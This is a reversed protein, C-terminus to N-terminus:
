QAYKERFLGIMAKRAAQENELRIGYGYVGDNDNILIRSYEATPNRVEIYSLLEKALPSEDDESVTLNLSSILAEPDDTQNLSIHYYRVSSEGFSDVYNAPDNLFDATDKYVNLIAYDGLGREFRDTTDKFELIGLTNKESIDDEFYNYRIDNRLLEALEDLKDERIIGTANYVAKLGGLDTRGLIGLVSPDFEDLAKVATSFGEISSDGNRVNYGRFIKRGSNTVYTINLQDGTFLEDSDLLIEHANLIVSLSDPNKYIHEKYESSNIESYFYKGSVRIEKISNKSPLKKSYEFFDTTGLVMLFAACAGFVAAFRLATKWFGKFSKNQSLELACYFLFSIPLIMLLGSAGKEAYFYSTSLGIVMVLLTLALVYFVSKFVFGEGTKEAKRRKGIFYAGAIFAAIVLAPVIFCIPSNILYDFNNRESLPIYPDQQRMIISFVAGSPPLLGINSSIERFNDVGVSNSFFYNAYITYIGPIVAMAVISFVIANGFRGCCSSIFATVAYISLYSIMIVPLLVTVTHPIIESTIDTNGVAANKSILDKIVNELILSVGSLPVLSIFNTCVSNLLDGSFREGYSLPLCGLTDISARDHYVRMSRVTVVTIMLVSIVATIMMILILIDDPFIEIFSPNDPTIGFKIMNSIRFYMIINPVVALFFNLVAFIIIFPINRSLKYCFYKGFYSNSKTM